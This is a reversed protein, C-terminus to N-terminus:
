KPMKDRIKKLYDETSKLTDKRIADQQEVCKAIQDMIENFRKADSDREFVFVGQKATWHTRTTELHHLLEEVHDIIEAELDWGDKLLPPLENKRDQYGKLMAQKTAPSLKYNNIREPFDVLIKNTKANGDAVASKIKALKLKSETFGVDKAIRDASLLTKIGNDEMAKLYDSQVNLLDNYVSQIMQRARGAEDSAPVNTNFRFDTKRPSRDSEFNKDSMIKFDNELGSLTNRANQIEEQKSLQRTRAISNGFLSLGSVLIVSISYTWSLSKSFRKKFIAMIGAIVLAIVFAIFAVTFVGGITRGFIWGIAWGVSESDSFNKQQPLSFNPQILVNALCLGAAGLTAMLYRSTKKQNKEPTPLPPPTETIPQKQAELATVDVEANCTPCSTHSDALQGPTDIIQGCHTCHFKSM